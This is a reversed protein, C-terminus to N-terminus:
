TTASDSSSSNFIVFASSHPTLARATFTAGTVHGLDKHQWIDRAQCTNDMACAVGVMSLTVSVNITEVGNNVLLM